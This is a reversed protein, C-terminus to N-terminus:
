ELKRVYAVPGDYDHRGYILYYVVSWIVVAGFILVAWNFTIMNFYPSSAPFPPVTKVVMLVEMM